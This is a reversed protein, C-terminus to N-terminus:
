RALLTSINQLLDSVSYPKHVFVTYDPRPASPIEDTVNHGSSVIVRVQPDIERLRQIVQRGNLGPMHWDLIVASIRQHEREFIRCGEDGDPWRTRYRRM